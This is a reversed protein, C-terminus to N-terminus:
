DLRILGRQHGSDSMYQTRTSLTLESCLVILTQRTQTVLKVMQREYDETVVVLYVLM